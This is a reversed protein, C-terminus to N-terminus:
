RGEAAAEAAEIYAMCERYVPDATDRQGEYGGLGSLEERADAMCKRHADVDTVPAAADRKLLFLMAACDTSCCPAASRFATRTRGVDGPGSYVRRFPLPLQDPHDLLLTMVKICEGIDAAFAAIDFVTQGEYTASLITKM